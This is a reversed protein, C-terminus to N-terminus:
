SFIEITYDSDIFLLVVSVIILRFPVSLYVITWYVSIYFGLCQAVRLSSFCPYSSSKVPCTFMEQAILLMRWTILTVFRTALWILYYTTLSSQFVTNQSRFSSCIRPLRRCLCSPSRLSQNPPMKIIPCICLVWLLISVGWDYVM